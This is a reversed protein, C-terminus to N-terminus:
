ESEGNVIKAVDSAPMNLLFPKDFGLFYCATREGHDEVMVIHEPNVWVNGPLPILPM